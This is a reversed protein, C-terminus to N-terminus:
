ILNENNSPNWQSVQLVLVACDDDLGRRSRSEAMILAALENADHGSWGSIVNQLWEDSDVDAIGDSIMVLCNGSNLVLETREPAARTDQLGAPLTNTTIRSVRGTNKLYSPAAGYKYLVATGNNRHLALLDITTFGRGDDTRLTLASNLTKLAPAPDIGAVLFKQLLRVTMAAEAHASEGSGMGDSLLLYLVEGVEFVALQDGCVKEGGKPRLNSGIRYGMPSASCALADSQHVSSQLLEGLQQYQQQAQRQATLLRHQYQQRLLYARLETNVAMLFQSFHVCRASFYTPFDQAQAQGRQLMAPCADNFANYTTSYNKQWCNSCLVCSRCTQEAARDFIVSPNEPPVPRASRFFTDYLERFAGAAQALVSQFSENTDDAPAESVTKPLVFLSKPSVAYLFCASVAEWVLADADMASFIYPFLALPLFFAAAQLLRSRKKSASLLAGGCGYCVAFLVTPEPPLLDVFLGVAAAICAADMPPLLFCLLMILWALLVRGPSYGGATTFSAAGCSIFILLVIGNLRQHLVDHKKHPWSELLWASGIIMAAALLCMLWDGIPRHILHISQVLLFLSGALCPRFYPQRYLKTDSFALKGAFILLAAAFFRLGSQFDWFLLTSCGIGFLAALTDGPTTTTAVMALAFPAYLGSLQSLSLLFAAVSHGVLRFFPHLQKTRVSATSKM